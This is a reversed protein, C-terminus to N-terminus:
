KLVVVSDREVVVGDITKETIKLSTKGRYVDIAEIYRESVSISSFSFVGITLLFMIIAKYAKDLNESIGVFFNALM